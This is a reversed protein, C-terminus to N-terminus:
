VSASMIRLDLTRARRQRVVGDSWAVQLCANEPDAAALAKCADPCDTCVLWSEWTAKNEEQKLWDCAAAYASGQEAASIRVSTQEVVSLEFKDFFSIVDDFGSEDM